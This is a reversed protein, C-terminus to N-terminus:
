LSTLEINYNTIGNEDKPYICVYEPRKWDIIEDVLSNLEFPIFEEDFQVHLTDWKVYWAKVDKWEKGEPFTVSGQTGASLVTTVTYSKSM